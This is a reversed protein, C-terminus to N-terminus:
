LESITPGPKTSWNSSPRGRKRKDISDDGVFDILYKM